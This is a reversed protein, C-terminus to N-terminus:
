PRREHPREDAAAGLEPPEAGSAAGLEARTRERGALDLHAAQRGLAVAAWLDGRAEDDARRRDLRVELVDVLLEADAVPRAGDGLRHPDPEHVSRSALHAAM